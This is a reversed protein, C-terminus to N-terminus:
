QDVELYRRRRWARDMREAASLQRPRSTPASPKRLTRELRERILERPDPAERLARARLQLDRANLLGAWLRVYQDRKQDAEWAKILARNHRRQATGCSKLLTRLQRQEASSGISQDLRASAWYLLGIAGGLEYIASITATFRGSLKTNIRNRLHAQIAEDADMPNIRM